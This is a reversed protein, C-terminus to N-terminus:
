STFLYNALPSYTFVQFFNCLPSIPVTWLVWCFLLEMWMTTVIYCFVRRKMKNLSTQQNTRNELTISREIFEVM